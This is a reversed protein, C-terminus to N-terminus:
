STVEIRVTGGTLVRVRLCRVTLSVAGLDVVSGPVVGAVEDDPLDLDAGRLAPYWKRLSVFAGSEVEPLPGVLTSGDPMVRWPYGLSALAEAGTGELRTWAAGVVKAVLSTDLRVDEGTETALDRLVDALRVGKDDRYQRRKVGKRWGGAGGVVFVSAGAPDTGGVTVTGSLSLDGLQVTVRQGAFFLADDTPEVTATWVGSADLAVDCAGIGVGDISYM